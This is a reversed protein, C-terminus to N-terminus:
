SHKPIIKSGYAIPRESGDKYEHSLIASLGYASADCALIIKERPDYHALFNKSALEKKVSEFAAACEETWKFGNKKTCEYFPKFREARKPLFRENYNVLGLFPQMQKTNMPEPAEIMVKIKEPSKHSGSKNIIYGM